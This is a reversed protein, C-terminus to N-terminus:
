DYSLCHARPEQQAERGFQLGQGGEVGRRRWLLAVCSSFSGTMKHQLGEWPGSLARGAVSPGYQIM